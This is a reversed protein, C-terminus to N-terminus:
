LVGSITVQVEQIIERLRNNEKREDSLMETLDNIDALAADLEGELDTVRDELRSNEELVEYLEDQISM